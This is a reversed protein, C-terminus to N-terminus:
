RSTRRQPPALNIQPPMVGHTSIALATYPGLRELALLCRDHEVQLDALEAVVAVAQGELARCAVVLLEQRIEDSLVGLGVCVAALRELETTSCSAPDEPLLDFAATVFELPDARIV